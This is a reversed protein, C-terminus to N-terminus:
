VHLEYPQKAYLGDSMMFLQSAQILSPYQVVDRMWTEVSHAGGDVCLTTPKEYEGAIPHGDPYRVADADVKYLLSTETTQQEEYTQKNLASQAKGLYRM